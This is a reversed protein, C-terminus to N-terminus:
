RILTAFGKIEYEDGRPGSYTVVCMYVGGQVMNGSNHIRGNWGETPDHTQFLLEGWRNWITFTFNKMGDLHGKGVFDDNLADFNPTFANPLFYRVQPEIDLIKTATDQCGHIHTVILNVVQQGTDPFTFVPDTETSLALGGFDWAWHAAGKSLDEFYVTSNFNNLENPSYSFDAIPTANVNIWDYFTTDIHCGIPSTIDLSVTYLGPRQYVHNPSIKGSTNGDGFDWIIDYSEDIPSSLNDFNVPLPECGEFKSPDVIVLPPAPFWNILQTTDDYCGNEDGVTLRVGHVGPEDFLYNLDQEHHGTGDGFDWSWTKIPGADSYSHDTFEIPGAVCSDYEFSFDAQIDPYVNVFIEATDSCQTGPNLVLTGNYVGTDPFVVTVNKTNFTQNTGDLDFSWLYENIFDEQFSENIFSVESNGCANIVFQQHNLVEDHQIQAFVTPECYAVNFQFDRRTISLLEGNRYEKVCTGVVFQGQLDPVGTLFGTVPDIAVNANIGLPRAASYQPEIYDVSNYPPPCSPNPRFGDCSSEDGQVFAGLIGAGLIPSCLEYVLQDGEPDTASHDFDIPENACIITPPFKNFIPSSNKLAQAAPLLEMTYTAGVMNPDVINNITANRCCRQYSIHYSENIIPLEVEFIYTGEKVCINPPIILCPNSLDAPIDKPNALPVNQHKIQEASNGEGKYVTVAALEDFDDMANPGCDLYIKMTFQYLNTNNNADHSLMKYSIDGGIIHSANMIPSM